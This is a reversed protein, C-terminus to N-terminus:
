DEEIVYFELYDFEIPEIFNDSHFRTKDHRKFEELNKDLWIPKSLDFTYCVEDLCSFVKKTRSLTTDENCVVIDQLMRNDQFLKAWIRFM